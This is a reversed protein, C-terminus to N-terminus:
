PTASSRSEATSSRRPRTPARTTRSTPTSRPPPVGRAAPGPQSRVGAPEAAPRGPGPQARPGPRGGRGPDPRDAPRRGPDARRGAPQPGPRILDDVRGAPTPQAGATVATVALAAAVAARSSVIWMVTSSRRSQGSRPEPRPPPRRVGVSPVTIDPVYVRPGTRIKRETRRPGAEATIRVSSSSKFARIGSGAPAVTGHRRFNRRRSVGAACAGLRVPKPFTRITPPGAERGDVGEAGLTADSRPRSVHPLGDPNADQQARQAGGRVRDIQRTVDTEEVQMNAIMRSLTREEANMRRYSEHMKPLTRRYIRDLSAAQEGSLDLLTTVEDSQWWRHPRRNQAGAEFPAAASAVVLVALVSGWWSCADELPISRTRRGLVRPFSSVNVTGAPRGRARGAPRHVHGVASDPTSAGATLGVNVEPRDPLWDLSLAETAAPQRGDDVPRHRVERASVLDGAGAIHYTPIRRGSLRALNRTNSSNYGGIVIMLDLNHDALLAEIADQRDQTASCITDFARYHRDLEAEGSGYRDIMARRIMEGIALSESMLMTTQNALGVRQLDHDPDFCPGAPARSRRSSPPLTAATGSSTACSGPKRRTSSSSPVTRRPVGPGPLRHGRDRRAEGQRPHDRHVRGPRVQAREELRQPGLRLHHRGAHLGTAAPARADLDRRRLRSPHRRRRPRPRARGRRPREPVPHGRRAVPRQGAPQPHDRGTLFISRGPFRRLTQYAYDVARDVGYCFGFESALYVHLRGIKRQYDAARVEDVLASHYHAALEGAVEKKLALGKRFMRIPQAAENM